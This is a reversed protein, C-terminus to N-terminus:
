KEILNFGWCITGVICAGVFWFAYIVTWVLMIAIDHLKGFFGRATTSDNQISKNFQHGNDQKIEKKLDQSAFKRNEDRLKGQIRWFDILAIIAFILGILFLAGIIALMTLGAFYAIAFLVEGGFISFMPMLMKPIILLHM